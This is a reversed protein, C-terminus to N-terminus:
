LFLILDSHIKSYHTHNVAFISFFFELLFFLNVYRGVRNKKPWILPVMLKKYAKPVIKKECRGPGSQKTTGSEQLCELNTACHRYRRSEM